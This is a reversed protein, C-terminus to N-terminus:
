LLTAILRAFLLTEANTVDVFDFTEFVVRGVM